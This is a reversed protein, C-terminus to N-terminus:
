EKWRDATQRYAEKKGRVVKTGRRGKVGGESRGEEKMGRRKKVEDEIRDGKRGNVLILNREQSCVQFRGIFAAHVHCQYPFFSFCVCRDLFPFVAALRQLPEEFKGIVFINPLSDVVQVLLVVHTSV